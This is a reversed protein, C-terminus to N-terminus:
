PSDILTCISKHFALYMGAPIIERFIAAAEPENNEELAEIVERVILFYYEDTKDFIKGDDCSIVGCTDVPCSSLVKEPALPFRCRIWAKKYDPNFYPPVELIQINQM